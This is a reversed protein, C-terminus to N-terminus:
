DTTNIPEEVNHQNAWEKRSDAREQHGGGWEVSEVEKEEKPRRTHASSLLHYLVIKEEIPFDAKLFKQYHNLISTPPKRCTLILHHFDEYLFNLVATM